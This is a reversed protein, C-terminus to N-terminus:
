DMSVVATETFDVIKAGSRSTGMSTRARCAYEWMAESPLSYKTTRERENLKSIYEKCDDWSVAEVPRHKGKYFSPNEGMLKKWQEQTVEFKGMWFGSTLTVRHQPKKSYGRTESKPSGILYTGAPIWIFAMDVSNSWVDGISATTPPGLEWSVILDRSPASLLGQLSLSGM